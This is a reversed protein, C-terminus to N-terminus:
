GNKAAENRGDAENVNRRDDRQDSQLKNLLAQKDDQPHDQSPFLRRPMSVVVPRYTCKVGSSRGKTARTSSQNSAAQRFRGTQVGNRSGRCANMRCVNAACRLTSAP